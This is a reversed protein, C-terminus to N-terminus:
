PAARLEPKDDVPAVAMLAESAAYVMFDIRVDPGLFARMRETHGIFGGAGISGVSCLDPWIRPM